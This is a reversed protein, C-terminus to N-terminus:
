NITINVQGSKQLAINIYTHVYGYTFLLTYMIYEDFFSYLSIM